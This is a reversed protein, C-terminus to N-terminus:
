ERIELQCSGFSNTSLRWCSMSGGAIIIWVGGEIHASKLDRQSPHALGNPHSHYCGIVDKGGSRAAKHASILAAPDIEFSTEPAESVNACPLINEIEGVRGLLLGCVELNPEAGAHNRMADHDARSITIKM